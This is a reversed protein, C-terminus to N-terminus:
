VPASKDPTLRPMPFAAVGPLTAAPIDTVIKNKRLKLVIGKNAAIDQLQKAIISAQEKKSLGQFEKDSKVAQLINEIEGVELLNVAICFLSKRRGDNYSALLFDLIKRKEEQEANYAPIGIQQAKGMDNMQNQHTIFSDFDDIHAYKDCPFSGCQFCYEIKKHEISCRAIKCSQNDVGCGSCHGTLNMPCLKCNLGCLSLYQNNRVFGKM